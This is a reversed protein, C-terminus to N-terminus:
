GEKDKRQDQDEARASPSGHYPAQRQLVPHGEIAQHKTLHHPAAPLPSTLLHRTGPFSLRWSVLDSETTYKGVEERIKNIEEENLEFSKKNEVGTDRLITKATTQGIGYIYQLSIEIRKQTPVEVNNIRLNQVRLPVRRPAAMQSLYPEAM